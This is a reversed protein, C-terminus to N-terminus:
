CLRKMLRKRIWEVWRIIPKDRAQMIYSNFSESPNNVLIDCKSKTSFHSRFWTSPPVNSLWEHVKVDLGTIFNMNKRLSKLLVVHLKRGCQM